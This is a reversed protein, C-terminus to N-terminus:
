DHQEDNKCFFFEWKKKRHKKERTHIDNVSVITYYWRDVTRGGGGIEEGWRRRRRRRTEVIEM